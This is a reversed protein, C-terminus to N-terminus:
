RRRSTAEGISRRLDKMLLFLHHPNGPLPKFGFRQYFGAAADDKAHVLM